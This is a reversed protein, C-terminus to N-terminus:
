FHVLPVPHDHPQGDGRTVLAPAPSSAPVAPQRRLMSRCAEESKGTRLALAKAKASTTTLSADAQVAAVHASNEDAEPAWLGNDLRKLKISGEEVARGVYIIHKKTWRVIADMRGAVYGSGRNDNMLDPGSDLQAKRAHSITILAAPRTAAVLRGYVIQMATADNEDSQHAEKVTDIIVALPQIRDVEARLKAFHAEIMIDFPWTDLSERDAFYVNNMNYGSSTITDLRDKWLGQPTDLQVYLVPGTTICPFGFWDPVGGSMAAALQIVGYSKGSKPPGFINAAGGVPILPKVLWLAETRDLSLYEACPYSRVPAAILPVTHGEVAPSLGRTSDYLSEQLGADGQRPAQALPPAIQEHAIDHLPPLVAQVSGVPQTM